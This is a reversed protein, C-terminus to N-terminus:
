QPPPPPPPLVLRPIGDVPMPRPGFGPGGPGPGNPRPGLQGAGNPPGVRGFNGISPPAINNPGRGSNNGGLAPPLNHESRAALAGRDLNGPMGLQGAQGGAPSMPGRAQANGPQGQQNPQQNPGQNAGQRPQGPQNAGPQQRAQNGGQQPQGQQNQGQQNQGPRVQAPQGPQPRGPAQLGNLAQRMEGPSALRPATPPRGPALSIISGPRQAVETAGDSTVSMREGYLFYANTRGGQEIDVVVIGGRVGITATPTNIKVDVTKSIKGGVYRLVGRSANITAGALRRDPDYVFEDLTVESRPGVTVASGDLFILQARGEAETVVRERHFVNSGDIIQVSMGGISTGSTAPVVATAAGIRQDDAHAAFAAALMMTFALYATATRIRPM